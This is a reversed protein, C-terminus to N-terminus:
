NLSYSSVIIVIKNKKTIRIDYYLKIPLLDFLNVQRLRVKWLLRRIWRVDKPKLRDLFEKDLFSEISQDYIKVLIKNKLANRNIRNKEDFISQNIIPSKAMYYYVVLIYESMCKVSVQEKILLTIIHNTSVHNYKALHEGLSKCKNIDYQDPHFYDEIDYKDINEYLLKIIYENRGKSEKFFYILEILSLPRNLYDCVIKYLDITLRWHFM